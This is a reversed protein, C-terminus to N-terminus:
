ILGYHKLIRALEDPYFRLQRGEKHGIGKRLSLAQIAQHSVKCAKAVQKVSYSPNM